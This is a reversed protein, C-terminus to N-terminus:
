QDVPLGSPVAVPVGFPTKRISKGSLAKLFTVINGLQSDSLSQRRIDLRENYRRMERKDQLLIFDTPNLWDIDPLRADTRQWISRSVAPDLHHKVMQELSRFAGNHGYPGTFQVNRLAPTRFRYSDELADSEALRGTDRPVPDFRRTRGPGFVPLGLAHFKQDTLLKGSHCRNCGAEGYFLRMGTKEAETLAARNGQLYADFPSDFSQWELSQFAALANAIDEIGIDGEDDIHAFAESFLRVYEPIAKIRKTIIPWVHDIRDFAARAISNEAPDGAMEFRSAVPFLAQAALLGSLGTPLREEAPSNFGTGYDESRSLRGDHFLVEIENSGLNWLAPANRPIRRKIRSDGQGATRDPGVGEGGEGIGLSLGDTGFHDHHHCTGCSINKNGSLIKDYFLLQGLSAQNRDQPPFDASTLAPPLKDMANVSAVSLSSLLFLLSLMVAKRFKVVATKNQM